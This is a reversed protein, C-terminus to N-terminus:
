KKFKRRAGALGLLGLGLLLMTAPEPVRGIAINDVEFAFQSSSLQFSDFDPLGLFNVYHNTAPATQNGNANGIAVDSGTLTLVMVNNKYFTLTNYTDMSGWWLGFYNYTGGLNTVMVSGNGSTIPAPVTVYYTLDKTSGDIGGPASYKGSVDGNVVAYSGTWTWALPGDFDETTAYYPSEFNNGNATYTYNVTYAGAVLPILCVFLIVVLMAFRIKKLM